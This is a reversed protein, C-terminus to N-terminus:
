RRKRLEDVIGSAPRLRGQLTCLDREPQWATSTFCDASAILLWDLCEARVTRVYQEAVVNPELVGAPVSARVAGRACRRARDRARRRGSRGRPRSPRPRARKVRGDHARATTEFDRAAPRGWQRPSWRRVRARVPCSIVPIRPHTRSAGFANRHPPRPEAQYGGRRPPDHAQRPRVSHIQPLEGNGPGVLMGSSEASSTISCTLSSLM